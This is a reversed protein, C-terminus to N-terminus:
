SVSKTSTVGALSLFFRCFLIQSMFAHAL